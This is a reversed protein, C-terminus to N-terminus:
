TTPCAGKVTTAKILLNRPTLSKACFYGVEVDYGGEILFLALDLVIWLELFPQFQNCILEHAIEDQYRAKATAEFSELQNKTLSVAPWGKKKSAWDLFETTTWNAASLPTSPLPTYETRGLISRCISDFLLRRTRIKHFAAMEAGTATMNGRVALKINDPTIQVGMSKGYTSLPRYPTTLRKHYCCPALFLTPPQQEVVKELLHTHLEGCAHLAIVCQDQIDYNFDLANATTIKGNLQNKNILKNAQSSLETSLEIGSISTGPIRFAIARSLHAKGCCYDFIKMPPGNVLGSFAAIQQWKREKIGARFYAPWTTSLTPFTQLEDLLAQDLLPTQEPKPPEKLQGFSPQWYRYHEILLKSTDNLLNKLPRNLM